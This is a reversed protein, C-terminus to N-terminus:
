KKTGKSINLEFTLATGYTGYNAKIWNLYKQTQIIENRELDTSYVITATKTKDESKLEQYETLAKCGGLVEKPKCDPDTTFQQEYKLFQQFKTQGKAQFQLTDKWNM